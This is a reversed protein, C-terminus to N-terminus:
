IIIEYEELQRVSSHAFSFSLFYTKKCFKDVLKLYVGPIFNPLFYQIAINRIIIAIQNTCFSKRLTM